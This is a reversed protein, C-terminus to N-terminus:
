RGILAFKNHAGSWIGIYSETTFSVVEDFHMDNEAKLTRVVKEM